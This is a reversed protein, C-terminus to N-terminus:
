WPRWPTEKIKFLSKEKSEAMRPDIEECLETYFCFKSQNKDYTQYSTPCSSWNREILDKNLGQYTQLTKKMRQYIAILRKHWAQLEVSNLSVVERAFTDDDVKKTLRAYNIVGPLKTVLSYNKFQVSKPYLWHSKGQFKHDMWCNLGQLTGIMDIRGELVFLNESDEYVSESFGVEIHQESTPIIDSNDYKAIYNRVTNRVQARVLSNLVFVQPRYNNCRKCKICDVIGLQPIDCHYEKTCGCACIDEDPNYDLSAQFADNMIMGKLRSKYYIELLKHGYTGSNMAENQTFYVPELRKIYQNIWKQPCELFTSIQSSDVVLTFKPM